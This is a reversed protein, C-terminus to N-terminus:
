STTIRIQTGESLHQAYKSLEPDAISGGGVRSWEARLVPKIEEPPRGAYQRGLRDFLAQYEAAVQRVEAQVARELERELDRSLSFKARGRM